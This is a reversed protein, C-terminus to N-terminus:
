RIKKRCLPIIPCIPDYIAVGPCGPRAPSEDLGGCSTSCSAMLTREVLVAALKVHMQCFNRASRPNGAAASVCLAM